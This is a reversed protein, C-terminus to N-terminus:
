ILVILPRACEQKARKQTSLYSSSFMFGIDSNAESLLYKSVSVKDSMNISFM